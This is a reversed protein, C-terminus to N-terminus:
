INRSNSDCTYGEPIVPASRTIKACLKLNSGQGPATWGQELIIKLELTRRVMLIKECVETQKLVTLSWRM